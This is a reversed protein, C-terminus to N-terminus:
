PSPDYVRRIYRSFLRYHALLGLIATTYGILVAMGFLSGVAPRSARPLRILWYLLGSVVRAGASFDRHHVAAGALACLGALVVAAILTRRALRPSRGRGALRHLWVGFALLGSALAATAATVIPGSFAGLMSIQGEGFRAVCLAIVMMPCCFLSLPRSAMRALNQQDHRYWRDEPTTACWVGGCFMATTVPIVIWLNVAVTGLFGALSRAGFLGYLLGGAIGAYQTLVAAVVLLIGRRVRRLWPVSSFRFDRISMFDRIPAGCEPCRGAFPLTRLNYGCSGCPVDDAVTMTSPDIGVFRLQDDTTRYTSLICAPCTDAPEDCKLITRCNRCGPNGDIEFVPESERSAPDALNAKLMSTPVDPGHTPEPM